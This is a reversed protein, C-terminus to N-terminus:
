KLAKEYELAAEVRRNRQRGEESGNDTVPRTEGYGRAELRSADIAFMTVLCNKVSEARKWSLRMNLDDDGVSDTHGEIVVKLDPHSRMVEALGALDAYYRDKVVASGTDFEVNLTVRGREALAKEEGRDPVPAQAPVPSMSEDMAAPPLADAVGKARPLIRVAPAAFRSDRQGNALCIDDRCVMVAHAGNRAAEERMLELLRDYSTEWPAYVSVIGIVEYDLGELPVDLVMVDGGYPPYTASGVSMFRTTACGLFTSLVLTAAMAFVAHKM